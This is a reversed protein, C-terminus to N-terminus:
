LTNSTDGGTYSHHTQLIPYRADIVCLGWPSAFRVQVGIETHNEDGEWFQMKKPFGDPLSPLDFNKGDM